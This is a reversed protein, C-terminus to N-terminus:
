IRRRKRGLLLGGACLALSAMAGPEPAPTFTLYLDAGDASDTLALSGGALDNNSTFDYDDLVMRLLATRTFADNDSTAILWSRATTADWDPLNGISGAVVFFTGDSTISTTGANWLDWNVGPTGASASTEWHFNGGNNWVSSKSGLMGIRSSSYIDDGPWVTGNYQINVNGDYYGEGGAISGNGVNVPGSVVGDNMLMAYQMSVATTGTLVVKGGAKVASYTYVGLALDSNSNILTGSNVLLKGQMQLGNISVPKDPTSSVQLQATNAMSLSNITTQGECILAGSLTCNNFTVQGEPVVIVTSPQYISTGNFVANSVNATSVHNIVGQNVTVHDLIGSDCWSITTGQLLAGGDFRLVGSNAFFITSYIGGTIELNGTVFLRSATDNSNIFHVTNNGTSINISGAGSFSCQVTSDSASRINLASQPVPPDSKLDISQNGTIGAATLTGGDITVNAQPGLNLIGTAQLNNPDQTLNVEGDQTLLLTGPANVGLNLTYANLATPHISGQGVGTISISASGGNTGANLSNASLEGSTTLLLAGTGTSGGSLTLIGTNIAGGNSITLTGSGSQGVVIENIGSSDTGNTWTTGRTVVVTGGNDIRPRGLTFLTGFADVKLTSGPNTVLLSDSGQASTSFSSNIFLNGGAVTLPGGISSASHSTVLDASGTKTLGYGNGADTLGDALNVSGSGSLNFLANGGIVIPVFMSQTGSSGATRAIAGSELTLTDGTLGSFNITSALDGFTLSRVTPSSELDVNYWSPGQFIVDDSPGPLTPSDGWSSYYHPSYYDTANWSSTGGTWTYTAGISAESGIALVVVAALMQQCLNKARM